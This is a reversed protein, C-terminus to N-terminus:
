DFVVGGEPPVVVTRPPESHLTVEDGTLAAVLFRGADNVRASGRPTSVRRGVLARDAVEGAVRRPPEEVRGTNRNLMRFEFSTVPPGVPTAADTEIASNITFNIGTKLREDLTRMEGRPEDSRAVLMTVPPLDHLQEPVFTAPIEHHSLMVRLIASLLAREDGKDATWVTLLYRLDLRPLALRRALKGEREVVETGSRAQTATRRVDWLHVNVTPRNLKASWDEEPPDFSVDVDQASLPVRARLLAEITEDILELM